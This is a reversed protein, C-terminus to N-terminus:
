GNEEGAIEKLAKEIKQKVIEKHPYIGEKLAIAMCNAYTDRQLTMHELMEKHRTLDSILAQVRGLNNYTGFNGEGQYEGKIVNAADLAESIENDIESLEDFAANAKDREAKLTDYREKLVVSKWNSAPMSGNWRKAKLNKGMDFVYYDPRKVEGM